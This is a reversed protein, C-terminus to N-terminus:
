FFIYLSLVIFSISVLTVLCGSKGSHSTKGQKLLKVVEDANFILLQSNIFKTQIRAQIDNGFMNKASVTSLRDVADSKLPFSVGGMAKYYEDFRPRILEVELQAAIAEDTIEIHPTNEVLADFYFRKAKNNFEINDVLLFYILQMIRKLDSESVNNIQCFYFVCFINYAVIELYLSTKQKESYNDILSTTSNNRYGVYPDKGTIVIVALSALKLVDKDSLGM